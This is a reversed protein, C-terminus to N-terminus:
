GRDRPSPSTYLLCTCCKIDFRRDEYYNHHESRIGVIAGKHPCWYTFDQDYGNVYGSWACDSTTVGISDMCYMSWARDEYYDNNKSKITNVVYNAPCERSWPKDYPTVPVARNLERPHCYLMGPCSYFEFQRDEYDPAVAAAVVRRGRSRFGRFAM